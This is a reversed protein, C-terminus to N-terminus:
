KDSDEPLQVSMSKKLEGITTWGGQGDEIITWDGIPPGVQVTSSGSTRVPTTWWDTNVLLVGAALTLVIGTGAAAFISIQLKKSNM